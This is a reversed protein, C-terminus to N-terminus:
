KLESTFEMEEMFDIIVFHFVGCALRSLYSSVEISICIAVCSEVGADLVYGCLGICGMFSM